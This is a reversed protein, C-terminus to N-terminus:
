DREQPAGSPPTPSRSASRARRAPPTTRSARSSDRMPRATRSKLGTASKARKARDAPKIGFGLKALAEAEGPRRRRREIPLAIAIPRPPLALLGEIYHEPLSLERYKAEQVDRPIPARLGYQFTLALGNDVLDIRELVGALADQKERTTATRWFAVLGKGGFGHAIQDRLRELDAQVQEADRSLEDHLPRLRRLERDIQKLDSEADAAPLSGSRALARVTEQGTEAKAVETTVRELEAPDTLFVRWEGSALLQDIYAAVANLYAVVWVELQEVAIPKVRGCRDNCELYAYGGKQDPLRKTRLLAGCSACRAIAGLPSHSQGRYGTELNEDLRRQVREFLDRQVLADVGYAPGHRGEILEREGTKTGRVIWGAYVPNRLLKSVHDLTVREREHKAAGVLFARVKRVSDGAAYREFAELILHGDPSPRLIRDDGCQLGWAPSGGRWYGNSTLHDLAEATRESRLDSEFQAIGQLMTYTLQGVATTEVRGAAITHLETASDHCLKALRASEITSRGLRDGKTAAAIAVQGSEIAALMEEYGPRRKGVRGSKGEDRYVRAPLEPWREAAFRRLQADQADLSVGQTAQENTSVRVYLAVHRPGSPQGTETTPQQKSM